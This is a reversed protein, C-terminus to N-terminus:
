GRAVDEQTYDVYDGEQITKYTGDGLLRKNNIGM